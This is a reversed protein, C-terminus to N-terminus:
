TPGGVNTHTKENVRSTYLLFGYVIIDYTGYIYTYTDVSADYINARPYKARNEAIGVHAPTRYFPCFRLNQGVSIFFFSETQRNARKDAPGYFVVQRRLPRLTRVNRVGAANTKLNM